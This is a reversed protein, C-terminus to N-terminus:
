GISLDSLKWRNFEEQSGFLFDEYTKLPDKMDFIHTRYGNRLTAAHWDVMCASQLSRIIAMRVLASRYQARTGQPPRHMAIEIENNSILRREPFRAYMRDRVSSEMISHYIIDIQRCVEPKRYAKEAESLKSLERHALWRKTAWDIRGLMWEIDDDKIANLAREWLTLVLEMEVATEDSEFRAESVFRQAARFCLFQVDLATLLNGSRLPLSQKAGYRAVDLLDKKPHMSAIDPLQRAEILNIMLSMTGLKLFEAVDLLSSDGYTMHFRPGGNEAKIGVSLTGDVANKMALGYARQSLYFHGHGDFYGSGAFIQRTAIFTALSSNRYKTYDLCHLLYNEHCGFTALEGQDTQAINNKFLHVSMGQESVASSLYDRVLRDGAQSYIIADRITRCEATSHEPHEGIDVYTLSGNPHWVRGDSTAVCEDKAAYYLSHKLFNSPWMHIPIDEGDRDLVCAYETEIGYARPKIIEM